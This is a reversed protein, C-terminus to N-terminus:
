KSVNATRQLHKWRGFLPSSEAPRTVVYTMARFKFLMNLSILAISFSAASGNLRNQNRWDCWIQLSFTPLASISRHSSLSAPLYMFSHIHFTKLWLIVPSLGFQKQPGVISAKLVSFSLFSCCICVSIHARGLKNMGPSMWRHLHVGVCHLQTNRSGSTGLTIRRLSGM